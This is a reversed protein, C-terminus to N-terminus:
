SASVEGWRPKGDRMLVREGEPREDLRAEHVQGNTRYQVKFGMTEKQTDTVTECRQQTSTYTDGSQLREQVKNGAYGGGLAGAVTALTKGSGGGVQNGVVGGVLGGIASGALQNEDQVSRRKTVTVDRCVERPVQRTEVIPEVNVIDAYEPGNDSGQYAGIAVGGAIGMVAIVGGIIIPKNM